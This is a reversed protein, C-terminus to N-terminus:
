RAFLETAPTLGTTGMLALPKVECTRTVLAAGSM